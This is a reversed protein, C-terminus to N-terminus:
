KVFPSLYVNLPPKDWLLHSKQGELWKKSDEALRLNFNWILKALVLRMEAYALNRGICDRPGVIFPQVADLRDNAFKPDKGEFREPIFEDPEVFLEPSRYTAWHWVGVVTNGPVAHGVIMAGGVPAVRPATIPVPPYCRLSEDLCALMYDLGNVSSLTIESEDQFHSRVEEELRKLALPHATLLYLAGCLLTATTESGAVVFLNANQCLKEFPLGLEIMGGLFDSKGEAKMGEHMELRQRVKRQTLERHIRRAELGVQFKQAVWMFLDLLGFKRLIQMTALNKVNGLILRVWPHYDSGQLCGFDSNFALAGLVDFTFFNLWTTMDVAQKGENSQSRLRDILLDAYGGILSEQARLTTPSFAPALAKRITDHETKEAGLISSPSTKKNHGIGYFMPDFPLEDGSHKRGYIDKWAAPDTFSLENPAIRVVSGYQRESGLLKQPTMRHDKLPDHVRGSARESSEEDIEPAFEAQGQGLVEQIIKKGEDMEGNMTGCGMCKWQGVDSLSKAGPPAQGNVLRCNQCILVIRNKPATEDEGMMLDLVRDYWRPPGTNFEYQHYSPPLDEANPAFEATLDRHVSPSQTPPASPEQRHQNQPTGPASPKQINATPPPPINIRGGTGISQRGGKKGHAGKQSAENGDEGHQGSKTRKPKPKEGGYKELLELTTDYKTAEKLKQVTKARESQLHKLKAELKDVRFSFYANILTRVVYILVPGGALGSWDLPSLNKRGVVLVLVIAYILYAISLYLTGLFKVRRSANYQQDLQLQTAAIKKSLTSLSKEFSAPSSDDGKWPWFSVM